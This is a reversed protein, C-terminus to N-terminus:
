KLNKITEILFNGWGITIFGMFAYFCNWTEVVGSAYMILPLFWLLIISITILFIMLGKSESM